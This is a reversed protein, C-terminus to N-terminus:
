NLKLENLKDNLILRHALAQRFEFKEKFYNSLANYTAELNAEDVEMKQEADKFSHARLM